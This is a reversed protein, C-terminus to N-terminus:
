ISIEFIEDKYQSNCYLWTDMNKISEKYRSNVIDDSFNIRYLIKNYSFQFEILNLDYFTFNHVDSSLLLKIPDITDVISLLFLMPHNDIKIKPRDIILKELGYTKYDDVYESHEGIFWINHACITWAVPLHINYLIDSSWLRNDSIFTKRKHNSRRNYYDKKREEWFLIGAAIGHDLKNNIKYRYNVYNNINDSIVKPVGTRYFGRPLVFNLNGDLVEFLRELAIRKDEMEFSYGFDHYFCILFWFYSFPTDCEHEFLNRGSNSFRYRNINRDIHSIYNDIADRISSVNEYIILGMFYLSVTHELRFGDEMLRYQERTFDSLKEGNSLISEIFYRSSGLVNHYGDCNCYTNNYYDWKSRDKLIKNFLKGFSNM